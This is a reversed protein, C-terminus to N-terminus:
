WSFPGKMGGGEALLLQHFNAAMFPYLFQHSTRATRQARILLLREHLEAKCQHQPDRSLNSRFRRKSSARSISFHDMPGGKLEFNMSSSNAKYTNYLCNGIWPSSDGSIFAFRFSTVGVMSFCVTRLTRGFVRFPAFWICLKPGTLM